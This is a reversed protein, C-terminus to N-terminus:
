RPLLDRLLPYATRAFDAAEPSDNAGPPLSAFIRVLSTDSRRDRFGDIVTFLKAEWEGTLARRPTQYWYLAVARQGRNTILYRHVPLPGAATNLVIEGSEAPLWGSGPLCVRPSHPQTAGGRQSQFWAVFLDVTVGSKQRFYLRELSRDARLQAATAPAIPVDAYSQWGATSRPFRALDPQPPLYEAGAILHIALAQTAV